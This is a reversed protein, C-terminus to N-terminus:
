GGHGTEEQDEQAPPGAPSAPTVPPGPFTVEHEDIAQQAAALDEEGFPHARVLHRIVDHFNM